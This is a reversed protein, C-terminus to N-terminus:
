SNSFFDNEPLIAAFKKLILDRSKFWSQMHNNKFVEIHNCHQNVILLTVTVNCSSNGNKM